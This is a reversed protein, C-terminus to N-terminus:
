ALSPCRQEPAELAWEVYSRLQEVIPRPRWDTERRLRETSSGEHQALRAEPDLDFDYQEEATTWAFGPLVEAMAALFDPISIRAGGAANFATSSLSRAFLVATIGLAVEECSVFDLGAELSRPSIRLPREEITARLARYALSMHKRTPTPREMPGFVVTPRVIRVDLEFLQAYRRATLESALKSISYLSEPNFPGDEDQLGPPRWRTPPGYVGGSSVHVFRELERERAWELMNVTGGVNVDLFVRAHERELAPAMTVTAGHVVHTVDLNPLSGADTVDAEVFGVLQRFPSLYDLVLEDPPSRDLVTVRLDDASELLRRTTAALVFGNGGTVLVHRPRSV